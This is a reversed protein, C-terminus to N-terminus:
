FGTVTELMLTLTRKSVGLPMQFLHFENFLARTSSGWLLCLKWTFKRNAIAPQCAPLPAIKWFCCCCCSFAVCVFSSFLNFLLLLLLSTCFTCFVCHIFDLRAFFVSTSKSAIFYVTLCVSLCVWKFCQCCCFKTCLPTGFYWLM